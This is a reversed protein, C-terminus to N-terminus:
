ANKVYNRIKAKAAKETRCGAVSFDCTGIIQKDRCWLGDGEKNTHYNGYATYKYIANHISKEGTMRNVLITQYKEGYKM